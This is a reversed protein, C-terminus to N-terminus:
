ALGGVEVTATLEQGKWDLRVVVRAQQGEQSLEVGTVSVEEEALAQAVYQGALAEREAPAARGLLHLGSGLEPLLPFSGRRITLKWLVRELLEEAGTAQRFGGQGDPVYDGERLILAM